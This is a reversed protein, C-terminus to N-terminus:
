DPRIVIGAIGDPRSRCHLFNIKADSQKVPKRDKAYQSDYSITALLFAGAAGSSM